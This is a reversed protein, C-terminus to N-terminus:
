KRDIQKNLALLRIVLNEGIEALQDKTLELARFADSEYDNYTFTVTRSWQQCSEDHSVCDDMTLRIAGDEVVEIRTTIGKM